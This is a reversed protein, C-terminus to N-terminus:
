YGKKPGLLFLVFYPPVGAMQTVLLHGGIQSATVPCFFATSKAIVLVLYVASVALPIHSLM